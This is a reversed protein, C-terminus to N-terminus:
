PSHSHHSKQHPRRSWLIKPYMEEQQKDDVVEVDDVEIRKTHSDSTKPISNVVIFEAVNSALIQCAM